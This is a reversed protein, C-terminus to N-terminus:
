VTDELAAILSGISNYVSAGAGELAATKHVITDDPSRIVAGSHGM